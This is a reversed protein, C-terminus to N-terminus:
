ISDPSALRDSFPGRGESTVSKNEEEVPQVNTYHGDLVSVRSFQKLLEKPKKNQTTAAAVEATAVIVTTSDCSAISKGDDDLQKM